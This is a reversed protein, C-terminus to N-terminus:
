EEKTPKAKATKATPTVSAPPAAEKRGDAEKLADEIEKRAASANHGLLADRFHNRFFKDSCHAYSDVAEVDTLLKVITNATSETIQIM